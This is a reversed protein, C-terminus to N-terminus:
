SSPIRRMLEPEGGLASTSEDAAPMMRFNMSAYWSFNSSSSTKGRSSFSPLNVSRVWTNRACCAAQRLSVPSISLAVEAASLLLACACPNLLGVCCNILIYRGCSARSSVTMKGAKWARDGLFLKVSQPILELLPLVLQQPAGAKFARYLLNRLQFLRKTNVLQRLERGCSSWHSVLDGRWCRPGAQALNRNKEQSQARRCEAPGRSM